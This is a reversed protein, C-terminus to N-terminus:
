GRQGRRYSNGKQPLLCKVREANLTYSQGRHKLHGMAKEALPNFPFVTRQIMSSRAIGVSGGCRYALNLAILRAM